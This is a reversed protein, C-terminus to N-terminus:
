NTSVYVVHVINKVLDSVMINTTTSRLGKSYLSHDEPLLWEYVSIIYGLSYDIEIEIAPCDM